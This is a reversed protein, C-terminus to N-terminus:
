TESSDVADFFLRFVGYHGLLPLGKRISSPEVWDTDRGDWWWRSSVGSVM